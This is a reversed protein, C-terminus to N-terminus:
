LKAIKNLLFKLISFLYSSKLFELFRTNFGKNRPMNVSLPDSWESEALESVDRAKVKVEYDGQSNWSHSASATEGSDIPETWGSDIGDGWSFLYSIKDNNPDTTSTTYTYETGPIGQTSGSLKSPKEPPLNPQNNDVHVIITGEGQNGDHDKMIARIAWVGDHVTTTDWNISWGDDAENDVGIQTWEDYFTVINGDRPKPSVTIM